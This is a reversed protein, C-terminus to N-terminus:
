MLKARVEKAKKEWVYEKLKWRRPIDANFSQEAKNSVANVRLKFHQKM